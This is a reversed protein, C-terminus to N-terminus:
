CLVITIVLHRYQEAELQVSPLLSISIAPIYIHLQIIAELIIEQIEFPAGPDINIVFDIIM